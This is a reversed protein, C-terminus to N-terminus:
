EPFDSQPLSPCCSIFENDISRYVIKDTLQGKIKNAWIVTWFKCINFKCKLTKGACLIKSFKKPAGLCTKAM